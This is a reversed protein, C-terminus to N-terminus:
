LNFFDIIDDLEDDTITSDDDYSVVDYLIEDDFGIQFKNMIEHILEQYAKNIRDTDKVQVVWYRKTPLHIVVMHQEIYLSEKKMINDIKKYSIKKIVSRKIDWIRDIVQKQTLNYKEQLEKNKLGVKLDMIFEKNTQKSILDLNNFVTVLDRKHKTDLPVYFPQRRNLNNKKAM